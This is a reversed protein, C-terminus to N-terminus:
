LARMASQRAFEPVKCKDPEVDFSAPYGGEVVQRRLAWAPSANAAPSLVDARRRHGYKNLLIM